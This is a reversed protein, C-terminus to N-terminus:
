DNVNTFDKLERNLSEYKQTLEKANKYFPIIPNYCIGEKIFNNALLPLGSSYCNEKYDCVNCTKSKIYTKMLDKKMNLNSDVYIQAADKEFISTVKKFGGRLDLEIGGLMTSLLYHVDGNSSVYIQESIIKETTPALLDIINLDQEKLLYKSLEEHIDKQRHGSPAINLINNYIAFFLQDSSAVKHSNHTKLGYVLQFDIIKNNKLFHSFKSCQDLQLSNDFNTLINIFTFYQKFLETMIQYKEYYKDFMNLNCVLHIELEEKKFYKHLIDLKPKIKLPPLLGSTSIALVSKKGIKDFFIRLTKSLIELYEESFNFHEGLVLEVVICEIEDNKSLANNEMGNYFEFLKNFFADLDKDEIIPQQSMRMELPLACGVCTGVCSTSSELTIKFRKM